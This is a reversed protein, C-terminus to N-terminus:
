LEEAEGDIVNQGDAETVGINISFAPPADGQKHQGDTSLQVTASHKALRILPDAGGDAHGYRELVLKIAAMDGGRAKELLVARIEDIGETRLLESVHSWGFGYHKMLMRHLTKTSVGFHRCVSRQSAQNKCLKRFEEKSFRAQKGKEYKNLELYVQNNFDHDAIATPDVFARLESAKAASAAAKVRTREKTVSDAEERQLQRRSKAASKTSKRKVTSVKKVTSKKTTKTRPAM